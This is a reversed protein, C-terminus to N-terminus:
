PEQRWAGNGQGYVGQPIDHRRNNDRRFGRTCHRSAMIPSGNGHSDSGHRSCGKLKGLRRRGRRRGRRGRGITQRQIIEQTAIRTQTLTWRKGAAEGTLAGAAAERVPGRGVKGRREVGKLM